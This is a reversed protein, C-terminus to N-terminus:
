KVDYQQGDIQVGVVKFTDDSQQEYWVKAYIWDNTGILNSAYVQCQVMYMNDSRGVGWADYYRANVFYKDLVDDSRETLDFWVSQSVETEPIHVDDFHKLYGGKDVDYLDEGNLAVYFIERNEVTFWFTRQDDIKGRFAVLGDITANSDTAECIDISKVGCTLLIERGQQAEDATMGFEILKEAIGDSTVDDITNETKNGNIDNEKLAPIDEYEQKGCLECEKVLEGEVGIQPETREVEIYKHKCWTQPNTLVGVIVLPLFAGVLIITIIGFVKVKPKKLLLSVITIALFVPVAFVLLGVLGACINSIIEM